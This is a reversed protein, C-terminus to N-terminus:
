KFKDALKTNVSEADTYGPNIRQLLMNVYNQLVNYRNNSEGFLGHMKTQAISGAAGNWSKIRSESTSKLSDFAIKINKNANNLKTAADNIGVTNVVQKM